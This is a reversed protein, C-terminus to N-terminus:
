AGAPRVDGLGSIHRDVTPHGRYEISGVGSVTADLEDTANVEAKGVGSVHVTAREAALDALRLEGAGALTAVLNDVRGNAIVEGAGDHRLALGSDSADGRLRPLTITV